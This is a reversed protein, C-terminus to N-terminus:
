TEAFDSLNDVDEEGLVELARKYSARTSRLQNRLEWNTEFNEIDTIIVWKSGADSWTWGCVFNGQFDNFFNYGSDESASPQRNGIWDMYIPDTQKGTYYKVPTQGFAVVATASNTGTINGAFSDSAPNYLIFAGDTGAAIRIFDISDDITETQYLGGNAVHVYKGTRENYLRFHSGENMVYTAGAHDNPVFESETITFGPYDPLDSLTPNFLYINEVEIPKSDDANHKINFTATINPQNEIDFIARINDISPNAQAAAVLNHNLIYTHENHVWTTTAFDADTLAKFRIFSGGDNLSAGANWIGLTGGIDNAHANAYDPHQLSIGDTGTANKKVIWQTPNASFASNDSSCEYGEEDPLGTTHLTVILRNDDNFGHGKLYFLNEPSFDDSNANSRTSITNNVVAWNNCNNASSKRLDARFVQNLQFPFNWTGTVNLTTPGNGVVGDVGTATFYEPTPISSLEVEGPFLEGTQTSPTYDGFPPYTFTVTVPDITKKDAVYVKFAAATRTAGGANAMGGNAGGGTQLYCWKFAGSSEKFHVEMRTKGQATQNTNTFMYKDTYGEATIEELAGFKYTGASTIDTVGAQTLGGATNMDASAKPAYLGNNDKIYFDTTSGEVPILTYVYNESFVLQDPNSKDLVSFVSINSPAVTMFGKSAMTWGEIIVKTETSPVQSVSLPTGLVYDVASVSTAIAMFGLSLLLKKM